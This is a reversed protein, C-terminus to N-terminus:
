IVRNRGENKARYLNTDAAEIISKSTQMTQDISVIGISITVKQDKLPEQFTHDEILKRLKECSKQACERDCQPFIILFEEGGYRFIMDSARINDKLIKAVSQLVDDGVQHGYTDNIKKFFDIDLMAVSFSIKDEKHLIFTTKLISDLSHRNRLQTLPDTEIQQQLLQHTIKVNLRSVLNISLRSLFLYDLLVQQYKKNKLHYYISKGSNHVSHHMRHLNEIEHPTFYENLENTAIWLGFQCKKPNLEVSPTETENEIDYIIRKMWHLHANIHSIAVYEDLQANLAPIDDNMLELLYGKATANLVITAIYNIQEILTTDTVLLATKNLLKTIFTQIFDTYQSYSIGDQYQKYAMNQYTQFIKEESYFITEKLLTSIEPTTIFKLLLPEDNSRSMDKILDSVLQSLTHNNKLVLV